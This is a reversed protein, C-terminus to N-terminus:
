VTFMASTRTADAELVIGRVTGFATSACAVSPAGRTISADLDGLSSGTLYIATYITLITDKSAM